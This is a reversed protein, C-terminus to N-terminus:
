QQIAHSCKTDKKQLVQLDRFDGVLKEQISRDFTEFLSKLKTEFIPHRLHERFRRNHITKKLLTISGSLKGMSKLVKAQQIQNLTLKISDPGYNQLVLDTLKKQEMLAKDYQIEAM